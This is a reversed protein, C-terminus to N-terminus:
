YCGGTLDRDGLEFPCKASPPNLSDPFHMPFNCGQSHHHTTANTNLRFARSHTNAHPRRPTVFKEPAGWQGTPRSLNVPWPANAYTPVIYSSYTTSTSAPATSLVRSSHVTQQAAVCESTPKKPGIFNRLIVFSEVNVFQVAMLTMEAQVHIFTLWTKRVSFM